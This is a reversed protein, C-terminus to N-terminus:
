QHHHQNSNVFITTSWSLVSSESTCHFLRGHDHHLHYHHHHHYPIIIIIFVQLLYLCMPWCRLQNFLSVHHRLYQESSLSPSHQHQHHHHCYHHYHDHCHHNINTINIIPMASVAVGGSHSTGAGPIGPVVPDWINYFTTYPKGIFNPRMVPHM